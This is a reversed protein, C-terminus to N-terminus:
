VPEDHRRDIVKRIKGTRPIREIGGPPLVDVELPNMQGRAIVKQLMEVKALVGEALQDAVTTETGEVRLTLCDRDAKRSIVLQLPGKVGELSM